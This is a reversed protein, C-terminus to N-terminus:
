SVFKRGAGPNWQLAIREGALLGLIKVSRSVAQDIDLLQPAITQRRAYALLQSTLEASRTGAKLIPELHERLPDDADLGDLAIGANGLIVTLMNNFDHAIGGALRGVAELKEAEHLRSELAERAAES